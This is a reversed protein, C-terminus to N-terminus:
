ISNVVIHFENPNSNILIFITLSIKQSRHDNDLPHPCQPPTSPTPTLTSPAQDM